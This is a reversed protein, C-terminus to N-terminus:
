PKRNLTKRGAWQALFLTALVSAAIIMVGAVPINRYILVHSMVDGGSVYIFTWPVMGIVTWLLYKRFSIGTIGFGYNLFSFPFLPILRTAAVVASPCERSLRNIRIFRDKKELRSRVANAAFHRAACFQLAAAASTAALAVAFGAATGFFSGALVSFPYGPLAVMTAATYAAIFLAFAWPGTRAMIQRTGELASELGYQRLLFLAGLFAAVASVSKIIQAKKM